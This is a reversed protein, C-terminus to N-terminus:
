EPQHSVDQNEEHEVRNDQTTNNWGQGPNRSLTIRLSAVNQNTDGNEGQTSDVRSEVSDVRSRNNVPDTVVWIDGSLRNLSIKIKPQNLASDPDNLEEEIRAIEDAMSKIMDCENLFIESLNIEM